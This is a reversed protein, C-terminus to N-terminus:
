EPALSVTKSACIWLRPRPAISVQLDPALCATKNACIWLHPRPGM